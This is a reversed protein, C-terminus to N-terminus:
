PSRGRLIGVVFRLEAAGVKGTVEWCGEGSFSIASPQFGSSDYGDPIEATLTVPDTGLRRGTIKLAGPIDRSWPWKITLTGDPSAEGAERGGITVIGAPYLATWIGSGNTYWSGAREGAPATDGPKTAECDALSAGADPSSGAPPAGSGDCGSSLVAACVVLNAFVSRM